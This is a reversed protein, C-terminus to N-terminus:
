VVVVELMQMYQEYQQETVSSDAHTPNNLTLMEHM